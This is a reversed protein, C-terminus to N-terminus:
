KIKLNQNEIVEVGEIARGGEIAKKMKTKDPKYNISMEEKMLGDPILDIIKTIREEPVGSLAALTMVDVQKFESMKNEMENVHPLLKAIDETLVSTDTSKSKRTGLTFEDVKQEGFVLVGNLLAKKCSDRTVEKQKKLTALEKIRNDLSAVEDEKEMMLYMLNKFASDKNKKNIQLAKELEPTLEGGSEILLDEISKFQEAIQYLKM